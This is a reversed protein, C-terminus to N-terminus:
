LTYTHLKLELVLLLRLIYKVNLFPVQATWKFIDTCPNGGNELAVLNSSSGSEVAIQQMIALDYLHSLKLKYGSCIKWGVPFSEM